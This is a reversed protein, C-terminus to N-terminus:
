VSLLFKFNQIQRWLQRGGSAHFKRLRDKIKNGEEDSGCEAYYTAKSKNYQDNAKAAQQVASEHTIGSELLLICEKIFKIRAKAKGRMQPSVHSRRKKELSEIQSNLDPITLM